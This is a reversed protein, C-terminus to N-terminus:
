ATAARAQLQQAVGVVEALEVPDPVSGVLGIVVLGALCVVRQALGVGHRVLGEVPTVKRQAQHVM